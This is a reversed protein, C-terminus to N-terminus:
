SWFKKASALKGVLSAAREADGQMRAALYGRAFQAFAKPPSLGALLRTATSADNSAGLLDQLAALDELYRAVRKERFLSAFGDVAYRLRKADIRVAHREGASRKALDSADAVLRKHRKRILRAAFDRASEGPAASTTAPAAALWASIDLMLRSYATSHLASRAADRALRRRASARRALTPTLAGKGYAEALPPLTETAFVDWDRAEGLTRAVEALEDRWRAADEPLVDRFIRLASRMRRQGVRAQHVFEPDSTALAGEENAQLQDLSAAVIARAAVAPACAPDLSVRQAKAPSLPDGRLLRYGRQAKTVPSPRLAVQAALARAFDFAAEREGALLEIEVECVRDAREGAHATGRDLAVEVRTGPAPEVDWTEREFEVTFAPRLREGVGPDKAVADLATGQLATLDITADPRHTEWEAREHLGGRGSAGGKLTQTWQRGSKRLRLAMGGKELDCDPTDYYISTRKRRRPRTGALPAAKRFAAVDQPSLALKLEIENM